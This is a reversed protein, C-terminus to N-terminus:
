GIEAFKGVLRTASTTVADHYKPTSRRADARFFFSVVSHHSHALHSIQRTPPLPEDQARARDAKYRESTKENQRETTRENERERTVRTAHTNTHEALKGVRVCPRIEGFHALARWTEARGNPM